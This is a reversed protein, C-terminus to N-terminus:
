VSSGIARVKEAVSGAAEAHMAERGHTWSAPSASAHAAATVRMAPDQALAAVLACALEVSAYMDEKAQGPVPAGIRLLM